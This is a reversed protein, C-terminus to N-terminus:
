NLGIKLTDRNDNIINKVLWENQYQTWNRMTEKCAKVM